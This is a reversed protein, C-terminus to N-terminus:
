CPECHTRVSDRRPNESTLAPEDGSRPDGPGRHARQARKASKSPSCPWCASDAKTWAKGRGCGRGPRSGVFRRWCASAPTVAPMSGTSRSSPTRTPACRWAGTTRSARKEARRALLRIEGSVEPVREGDQGSPQDQRRRFCWRGQPLSHCVSRLDPSRHRAAPVMAALRVRRYSNRRGPLRESSSRASSHRWRDISVPPRSPGRVLAAFSTRGSSWPRSIFSLRRFRVTVPRKETQPQVRSTTTCLPFSWAWFCCLAWFLLSISTGPQARLSSGRRCPLHIICPWPGPELRQIGDGDVVM